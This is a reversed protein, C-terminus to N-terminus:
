SLGDLSRVRPLIAQKCFSRIKASLQNSVASRKRKEYRPLSARHESNNSVVHSIIMASGPDTGKQCVVAGSHVIADEFAFQVSVLERLNDGPESFQDIVSLIANDQIAQALATTHLPRYDSL